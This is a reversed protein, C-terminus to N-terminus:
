HPSQCQLLCARPKRERNVTDALRMVDLLEAQEFLYVAEERTMVGGAQMKAALAPMELEPKGQLLFDLGQRTEDDLQVTQANVYREIYVNGLEVGINTEAKATAAQLTEQRHELGYNISARLLAAIQLRKM